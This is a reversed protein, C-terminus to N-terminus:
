PPSTSGSSSDAFTRWGERLGATVGPAGRHVDAWRPTGRLLALLLSRLWIACDRAVFRLMALDGARLHKAYFMGLGRYYDM